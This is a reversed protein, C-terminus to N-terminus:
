STDLKFRKIIWYITASHFQFVYMWNMHNFKYLASLDSFSWVFPSKTINRFLSIHCGGIKLSPLLVIFKSDIFEYVFKVNLLIKSRIRIDKERFAYNKWLQIKRLRFMVRTWDFHLTVLFLVDKHITISGLPRFYM